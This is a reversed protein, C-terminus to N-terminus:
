SRLIHHPIGCRFERSTAYTIRERLQARFHRDSPIHRPAMWAARRMTGMSLLCRPRALSGRSATRASLSFEFGKGNALKPVESSTLVLDTALIVRLAPGSAGISPAGGTGIEDPAHRASALLPMLGLEDFAAAATTLLAAAGDRWDTGGRAILLRAQDDSAQALEALPRFAAALPLYPLTLDEHCSGVLIQAGVDDARELLETLLRSKGIGSDGSILVIRPHGSIAEEVWAELRAIEAARGVLPPRSM